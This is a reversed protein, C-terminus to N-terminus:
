FINRNVKIDEFVLSQDGPSDRSGHDLGHRHESRRTAVLMIIRMFQSGVHFAHSYVVFVM